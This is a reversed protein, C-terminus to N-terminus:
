LFVQINHRHRFKMMTLVFTVQTGPWAPASIPPPHPPYGCGGGGQLHDAAKWYLQYEAFYASICPTYEWCSLM